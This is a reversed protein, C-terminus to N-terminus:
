AMIAMDDEGRRSERQVFDREAISWVEVLARSTWFFGMM